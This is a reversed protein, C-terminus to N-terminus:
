KKILNIKGIYFIYVITVLLYFMNIPPLLRLKNFLPNYPTYKQKLFDVCEEYSNVLIKENKEGLFIIPNNKSIQLKLNNPNRMNQAENSYINYDCHKQIENNCDSAKTVDVFLSTIECISSIKIKEKLYDDMQINEIKPFGLSYFFLCFMSCFILINILNIKKFIKVFIFLLSVGIFFSYYNVKMTDGKNPDFHNFPFGFINLTLVFIGILPSLYFPLFRKEKFSFFLGLLYFLITFIISGYNILFKGYIFGSNDSLTDSTKEAIDYIFLHEDYNIFINFYDGFTDILTIGILSDNHYPYEPNYYFDWKHIKYVFSLPAVNDYKGAEESLNHELISYSNVESTEYSILVFCFLLILFCSFHIKFNNRIHKFYRILLFIIVMGTISGKITLLVTLPIVLYIFNKISINKFYKDLGIIIWPFLCFAFIEPKLISRMIFIPMAFNLLSLSILISRKKYSFSKLLIYFGLIGFCYIIFNATHINSNIFHITNLSNGAENRIFSVLSVIFYYILGYSTHTRESTYEFYGLYKSHTVWDVGKPIYFFLEGLSFTFITTAFFLIYIFLDIFNLKSYKISKIM